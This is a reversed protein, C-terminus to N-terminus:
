FSVAGTLSGAADLSATANSVASTIAPAIASAVCFGAKASLNGQATLTAGGEVAASISGVFGQGRGKLAVIVNPLNAEISSLLLDFKVAADGTLQAGGSVAIRVAPPTCTAKANVSADCNADCKAEVQCGGKLTGGECKLPTYDANCEGDCKVEAEASGKCTASCSGNCTGTCTVKPATASATCKGQCKGKCTGDAQVGSAGNATGDVTCTGDCSGECDVAVGGQATCSGECTGTCSGECSLTAGAKATCEGKCSVQLSGGECTPPNAKIDCSASGSCNAQCKAKADISAECKPPDFVATLKANAQGTVQLTANIKAVALACFGKARENPQKADEADLEAQTAGADLAINRCAGTVDDLMGKATVSADGVAQAFVTFQGKADGEIKLDAGITAMDKGPQFETCCLPNDALTDAASCAVLTLLGVVGLSVPAHKLFRNSIIM